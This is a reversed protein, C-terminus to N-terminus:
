FRFQTRLQALNYKEESSTHEVKTHVWNAAVKVNDNAYWNVVFSYASQKGANAATVSADGDTTDVRSYRVGTEWAGMNSAPAVRGFTGSEADYDRSEGTLVYSLNVYYGDAKAEASGVDDHRRMYEGQALVPGFMAAVDVGYSTSKDADGSIFGVYGLSQMGRASAELSVKDLQNKTKHALNNGDHVNTHAGSVGLHYLGSDDGMHTFLRGVFSVPDHNKSVASSDTSNADFRPWTVAFSLGLVDEWHTTGYVGMGDRPAFFDSAASREVFTTSGSATWNELGWPTSVYGFALWLPDFGAYGLWTDGLGVRNYHEDDAFTALKVQYSWCNDFEGKVYVEGRRLSVGSVLEYSGGADRDDGFFHTYDMQVQGGVKVPGAAMVNSAMIAGLGAVALCLMQKKSSKGM